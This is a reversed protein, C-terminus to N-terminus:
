VFAQIERATFILFFKKSNHFSHMGSLLYLLPKDLNCSIKPLKQSFDLM